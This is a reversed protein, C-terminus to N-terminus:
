WGHNVIDGKAAKLMRKLILEEDDYNVDDAPKKVTRRPETEGRRANRRAKRLSFQQHDEEAQAATSIGKAKWNLLIQKIYPLSFASAQVAFRAAIAVLDPSYEELLGELQFIEAGSLPRGFQAEVDTFVLQDAPRQAEPEVLPQPDRLIYQGDDFSILGM